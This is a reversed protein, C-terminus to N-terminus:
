QIEEKLEIDSNTPTNKELKKKESKYKISVRFATYVLSIISLLLIISFLYGSYIIIKEVSSFNDSLFHDKITIYNLFQWTLALLALIIVIVSKTKLKKLHEEM